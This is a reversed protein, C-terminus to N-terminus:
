WLSVPSTIATAINLLPMSMSMESSALRCSSNSLEPTNRVSPRISLAPSLTVPSTTLALQSFEQGRCVFQMLRPDADAAMEIGSGVPNSTATLGVESWTALECVSLDMSSRGVSIETDTMSCYGSRLLMLTEAFVNAWDVGAPMTFVVYEAEVFLKM